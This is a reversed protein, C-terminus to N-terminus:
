GNQPEPGRKVAFIQIIRNAYEALWNCAEQMTKYVDSEVDEPVTGIHTTIINTGLELAADVIRKSQEVRSVNETRNEFGSASLDGCIASIKVGYHSLIRKKESDCVADCSRRLIM